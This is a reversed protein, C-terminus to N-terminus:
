RPRKLLQRLGGAMKYDAATTGAPLVTQMFLTVLNDQQIKRKARVDVDLRWPQDWDFGQGAGHTDGTVYTEGQWMIRDQGMAPSTIFEEPFTLAPTPEHMAIVVRLPFSAVAFGAGSNVRGTHFFLTGRIRELVADEGGHLFLDNSIVLLVAVGWVHATGAVPGALAFVRENVGAADDYCSFGDIWGVSRKRGFRRRGFRRGRM